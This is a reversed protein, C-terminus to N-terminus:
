VMGQGLCARVTQDNSKDFHQLGVVGKHDFGQLLQVFVTYVFFAEWAVGKDFGGVTMRECM